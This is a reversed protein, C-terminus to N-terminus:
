NVLRRKLLLMRLLVVFFHLSIFEIILGVAASIFASVEPWDEITTRFLDVCHPLISNWFFILYFLLVAFVAVRFITRSIFDRLPSSTDVNRPHAYKTLAVDNGLETSFNILLWILAYVVLGVLAWFIIVVGSRTVGGGAFQELVSNISGLTADRFQFGSPAGIYTRVFSVNSVVLTFLSISGFIISETGSPIMWLLMLQLNSKKNQM